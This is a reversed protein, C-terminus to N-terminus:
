STTAEIGGFPECSNELLEPTDMGSLEQVPAVLEM